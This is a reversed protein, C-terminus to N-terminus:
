VLWGTEDLFLTESFMTSDADENWEHSAFLDEGDKVTLLVKLDKLAHPEVTLPDDSLVVLDARMGPAITGKTGEESYLTANGRTLGVLADRVGVRQEEGLVAGSRTTRNVAADLLRLPELPVVPADSHLSLTMGRRLTSALPSIRRAREPGLTERLHWDGWYFTHVNFYSPLIGLERMADLQDERVTQAHVMVPRLPKPGHKARAARVSSIMMDSAADGNCHVLLQIDEAYAKDFWADLEQQSVVSRGRYDAPEGEPPRLYPRTLYATKGQPSGDATIKVGGVKLRGQYDGVRKRAKLASLAEPSSTTQERAERDCDHRHTAHARPAVRPSLAETLTTWKPYAVIDILLRGQRAAEELLALAAPSTQGEQATTVGRSAYHLQVQELTGLLQEPTRQPLHALLGFVAQETVVGTPVGDADRWIGGGPPDEAGPVYGAQELAFHNATALHGSVHVLVIGHTTSLTDLEDALPHRKEALLSDDYGVAVVTTGEPPASERLHRRMRTLIDDLSEVDGAPPPSLDPWGWTEVMAAIHSHGDVFGPVLTRGLLPIVETDRGRHRLVEDRSGVALIRDGRLAVAEAVPRAEDLTHITGGEFIRDALPLATQSPPRKTSM